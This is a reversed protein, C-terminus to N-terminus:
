RRVWSHGGILVSGDALVTVSIPYPVGAAVASGGDGGYHYDEDGAFPTAWGGAVYRVQHWNSAVVLVGAGYAALGTPFSFSCSTSRAAPASRWRRATSRGGRRRRATPRRPTAPAAPATGQM